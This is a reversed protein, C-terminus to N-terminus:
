FIGFGRIIVVKDYLTVSYWFLKNLDASFSFFACPVITGPKSYPPNFLLNFIKCRQELILIKGCKYMVIM